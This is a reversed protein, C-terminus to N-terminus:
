DNILKKEHCSTIPVQTTNCGNAERLFHVFHVFTPSKVSFRVPIWDEEHFTYIEFSKGSFINMNNPLGVYNTAPVVM